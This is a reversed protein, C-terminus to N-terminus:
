GGTYCHVACTKNDARKNIERGPSNPFRTLSTRAIDRTTMAIINECRYREVPYIHGLITVCDRFKAACITRRSM